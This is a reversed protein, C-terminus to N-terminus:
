VDRFSFNRSYCFRLLRKILFFFLDNYVTFFM